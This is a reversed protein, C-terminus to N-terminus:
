RKPQENDPNWNLRIYVMEVKRRYKEEIAETLPVHKRGTKKSVRFSHLSLFNDILKASKVQRYYMGIQNMGKYRRYVTEDEKISARAGISFWFGRGLGGPEHGFATELRKGIEESSMGRPVTISLEGDVSGDKYAHVYVRAEIGQGELLM